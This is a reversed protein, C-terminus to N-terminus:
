TATKKKAFFDYDDDSDVVTGVLMIMCPLRAVVVAVVLWAGIYVLLLPWAVAGKYEAANALHCL